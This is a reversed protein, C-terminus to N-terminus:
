LFLSINNLTHKKNHIRSASLAYYKIYLFKELANKM